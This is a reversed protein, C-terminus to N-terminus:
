VSLKLLKIADFNVVHGTINKITGFTMSPAEGFPNRMVSILPHEFVTYASNFDGYAISLTDSSAVPMDDCFHIPAGLIHTIPKDQKFILRGNSDRLEKLHECNERNTLWSANKQYGQMLSNQLKILGNSTIKGNIGSNIQEIQRGGCGTPYTLIGRPEPSLEGGHIFSDNLTLEFAHAADLTIYGTLSHSSDTIMKKSPRSWHRMTGLVTTAIGGTHPDIFGVATTELSVNVKNALKYIISNKSLHKSIALQACHPLFYGNDAVADFVKKSLEELGNENGTHLYDEFAKEYLEEHNITM